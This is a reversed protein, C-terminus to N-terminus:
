QTRLAEYLESGRTGGEILEKARSQPFWLNVKQAEDQFTISLYGPNQGPITERPIQDIVRVIKEVWEGMAQGDSTSTVKVGIYFDTQMPLFKAVTNTEPDLCDEGYSSAEAEVEKMGADRFAQNVVQSLEPQSRTSWVYACHAPDVTPTPTPEPTGTVTPVVPLTKTPQGPLNVSVTSCGVIVVPILTIAIIRTIRKIIADPFRYPRIM